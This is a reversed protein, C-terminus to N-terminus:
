PKVEFFSARGLPLKGQRLRSYPLCPIGFGRAPRITFFSASATKRKLTLAGDCPHLPDLIPAPLRKRSPPVDFQLPVLRQM